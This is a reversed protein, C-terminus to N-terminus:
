SAGGTDILLKASSAGLHAVVLLQKGSGGGSTVSLSTTAVGDEGTVLIADALKANPLTPNAGTSIAKSGEQDINLEIQEGALIEGASSIATLTLEFKKNKQKTIVLTLQPIPLGEGPPVAVLRGSITSTTKAKSNKTQGGRNFVKMIPRGQSNTETLIEVDFEFDLHPIFYTPSQRGFSDFPPLDNLADQAERIGGALSVLMEEISSAVLQGDSPM